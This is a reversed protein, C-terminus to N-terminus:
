VEVKRAGIFRPDPALPFGRGAVTVSEQPPEKSVITTSTVLGGAFNNSATPVIAREIYNDTAFFYYNAPIYPLTQTGGSAGRQYYFADSVIIQTTGMQGGGAIIRQNIADSVAELSPPPLQAIAAADPTGVEMIVGRDRAVIAKTSSQNRLDTATKRSMVIFPPFKKLNTYYDNLHNVIDNIGNANTWNSWVSTGTLATAINGSPIQNSYSLNATVGSITDTYNCAGTCAVQLTLVTHLNIVSQTLSAPIALFMNRIAEAAQGNGSMALQEAQRAVIFDEETILRSKALKFNGFTEQTISLRETDQPIDGDTAVVYGVTPTYARLKLLALIPDSYQVFPFFRNLAPDPYGDRYIEGTSSVTSLQLDVARQVVGPQNNILEIISPM